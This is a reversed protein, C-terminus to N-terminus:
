TYKCQPAFSCRINSFTILLTVPISLSLNLFPSIHTSIHHFSRWRMQNLTLNPRPIHVRSHFPNTSSHIPSCFFFHPSLSPLNCILNIRFSSLQWTYTHLNYEIHSSFLIAFLILIIQYGTYTLGLYSLPLLHFHTCFPYGTDNVHVAPLLM